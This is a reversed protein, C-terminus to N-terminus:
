FLKSYLTDLYALLVLFSPTQNEQTLSFSYRNSVFKHSNNTLDWVQEIDMPPIENTVKDMARDVIAFRTSM